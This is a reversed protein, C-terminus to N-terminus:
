LELRALLLLIARRTLFLWYSMDSTISIDVILSLTSITASDNLISSLSYCVSDRVFGGVIYCATDIVDAPKCAVSVQRIFDVVVQDDDNVMTM